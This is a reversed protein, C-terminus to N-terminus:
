EVVIKVGKENGVKLVYVRNSPVSFSLRAGTATKQDILIGSLDYLSVRTGAAVDNVSLTGNAYNWAWVASEVDNIGTDIGTIANIQLKTCAPMTFAYQSGDVQTTTTNGSVTKTVTWGVVKKGNEATGELTVSRNQFFKGDFVGKTLKVGNFYFPIDKADAASLDKNVTMNTLTGLNYYNKLHTYFNNTRQSLWNRANNIENQIDQESGWWSWSYLNRHQILEPKVLDAMPDWIERTGSENLFDGMYIACRDIFERSFDPDAMLNRFLMTAESTNAWANGSDYNPNNIWEITNYNSSRGYLGLGFDTDKAIWRWKGDDAIPRWVVLNNGPFDLNGYYLNMAMINIFENCDMLSAYEAMSHGSEHFFAKFANYNDWTGTKLEEVMQSNEQSIEVMDIDELGKGKNNKYNSFINDDNSRERINLMGKYEGNIFIVTPQWAQWDLDANQGMVRQIIADRMYLGGFDNGANRLMLSKFETIGPKQEPFFEYELRKTGFRKNAYVVLTKLAHERSQGGAVRTECLQNLASETGANDFYEFNIPRRWDHKNEKNPNNAIIGIAADNLYRDDTVISIVPLTFDRGLFIYSQTTSIPSLYGDCFLKARIVRNSNIMIASSYLTSTATPESGDTTYRIVTGEPADEPVSITLRINKNTTYVKGEASFVPSGLVDTYITGCNSAGPTPTAQYGWEDGGDTKRGYAINPAPMAVYDEKGVTEDGKFLYVSGADDSELRFSTHLGNEEKDCYIVVYDHANVTKNPLQWAKSASKKSGIKYDALNVPTDGSNYLEVWSDPFENLDDMICDINSQMIENIVLQAKAQTSLGLVALSMLLTKKM